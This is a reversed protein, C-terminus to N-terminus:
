GGLERRWAKTTDRHSWARVLFFTGTPYVLSVLWDRSGPVTIKMAAGMFQRPWEVTMQSRPLEFAVVTEGEKLRDKLRSTGLEKELWGVVADGAPRDLTFRLTADTLELIGAVPFPNVRSQMVYARQPNM